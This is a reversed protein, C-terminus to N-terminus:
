DLFVIESVNKNYGNCKHITKEVFICRPRKNLWVDWKIKVFDGISIIFNNIFLSGRGDHRIPSPCGQM